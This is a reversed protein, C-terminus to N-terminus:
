KRSRLTAEIVSGAVAAALRLLFTDDHDKQPSRDIKQKKRKPGQSVKRVHQFDCQDGKKCKNRQFYFCVKNRKAAPPEQTDKEEARKPASSHSDPKRKGVPKKQNPNPTQTGLNPDPAPIENQKLIELTELFEKEEPTKDTVSM